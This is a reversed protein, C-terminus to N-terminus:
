PLTYLLDHTLKFDVKAGAALAPMVTGQAQATRGGKNPNVANFGDKAVAFGTGPGLLMGASAAGGAVIFIKLRKGLKSEGRTIPTTQLPLTTGRITRVRLLTLQLVPHGKADNAPAFRGEARSGKDAVSRDHIRIANDLKGTFAGGRTPETIAIRENIVVKIKTGAKICVVQGM